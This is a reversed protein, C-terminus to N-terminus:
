MQATNVFCLSQALTGVRPPMGFLLEETEMERMLARAAQLCCGSLTWLTQGRLRSCRLHHLFKHPVRVAPACQFDIRLGPNLCLPVSLTPYNLHDDRPLSPLRLALATIRAWSVAVTGFRYYGLIGNRAM